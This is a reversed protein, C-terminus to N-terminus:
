KKWAPVKKAASPASQNGAAANVAKYFKVKNSPGYGNKGEEIGLVVQVNKFCLEDTDNFEEMGIASCLSSLQKQAIEVAKPNENEVNFRDFIKAGKFQGDTIELTIVIFRGNRAKTEKIESDIITTIYEGAPLPKFGGSHSDQSQMNAMNFSFTAM